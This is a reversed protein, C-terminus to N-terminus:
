KLNWPVIKKRVCKPQKCFEIEQPQLVSIRNGQQGLCRAMGLKYLGGMNRSTYGSEGDELDATKKGRMETQVPFHEEDKM